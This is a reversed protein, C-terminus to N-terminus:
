GEGPFAHATVQRIWYPLYLKNVNITHRTDHVHALHSRLLDPTVNRWDRVRLVPLGAYLDAMADSDDWDLIPIAGAYLAEWDRHCARGPCLM